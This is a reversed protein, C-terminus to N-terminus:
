LLMFKQRIQRIIGSICWANIISCNFLGSNHYLMIVNLIESFLKIIHKIVQIIADYTSFM